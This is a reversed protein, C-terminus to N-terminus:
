LANVSSSSHSLANVTPEASCIYCCLIVSLYYQYIISIGDSVCYSKEVGTLARVTMSRAGGLNIARLSLVGFSNFSGM